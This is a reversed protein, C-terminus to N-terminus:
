FFVCFREVGGGLGRGLQGAGLDEFGAETYASPFFPVKMTKRGAHSTERDRSGAQREGLQPAGQLFAAWDGRRGSGAPWRTEFCANDLPPPSALLGMSFFLM